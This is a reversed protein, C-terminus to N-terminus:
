QEITLALMSELAATSVLSGDWAATLRSILGHDDLELAVAGEHVAAGPAKWEYGGGRPSGVTHRVEVGAGSYPLRPLARGLFAGIGLPGFFVAHLTLDEFVAGDAFLSAAGAADGQALAASLASVVRKMVPAAHEGVAAEGFDPPFKGAPVRLSAALASGFHRGDWHDVWRRIKDGSFDVSGISQIEGGFMPPTNTFLVMAGTTDGLIRTPYSRATAPWKPMSSAFLARLSDWNPFFYGLTADGYSLQGRDFFAMTGDVDHRSKTAFFRVLLSVLEPTAHSVDVTADAGVATGAPAASAAVSRGAVSGIALAGAGGLLGRRTLSNM